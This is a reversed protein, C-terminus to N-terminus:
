ILVVGSHRVREFKVLGAVNGQTANATVCALYMDGTEADVSMEHPTVCRSPDLPISQLVRCPGIGDSRIHSGDLVHVFQHTGDEPSEAAAVFVLDEDHFTGRVGWAKGGAGGLAPCSWEGIVQGGSSLMVTRNMERDAVLITNTRRHYTLSHPSEFKPDSVQKSSGDANGAVWLLAGPDSINGAAASTNLAVVRNNCGGDGDAVYAVTGLGFDGDAVNGYQISPFVASGQTSGGTNLLVGNRDHVLVQGTYMDYIWFRQEDGLQVNLGHSGWTGNVFSVSANGWSRLLRGARDFVLIPDLSSGRQSVHIEPGTEALHNVAIASIEEAEAPLGRPWTPDVRYLSAFVAYISLGIM